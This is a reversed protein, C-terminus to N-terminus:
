IHVIENLASLFEEATQPRDKPDKALARHVLAIIPEQALGDPHVIALPEPEMLLQAKLWAIPKEKDSLGPKLSLPHRGMLMEYLIIGVVYLDSRGDVNDKSFPNCQEPAMYPPAGLMRGTQTLLETGCERAIGFDIIKVSNAGTTPDTALFINGPNLDRHVINALHAEQLAALIQQVIDIARRAFLPKREHGERLIKQLPLGQVLEMVLYPQKTATDEGYEILFVINPHQLKTLAKAERRFRTIEDPEQATATNLIKLALREGKPGEVEYVIAMGGRGLERIVTYKGGIVLPSPAPAIGLISLPGTIEGTLLPRNEAAMAVILDTEPLPLPTSCREPAPIPAPETSSRQRGRYYLVVGLGVLLLGGGVAWPWIFPETTSSETMPSDLPSQVTPTRAASPKMRTLARRVARTENAVPYTNIPAAPRRTDITRCEKESACALFDGLTDVDGDADRFVIPKGQQQLVTKVVAAVQKGNNQDAASLSAIAHNIAGQAGLVNQRRLVDRQQPSVIGLCSVVGGTATRYLDSCNVVQEDTLYAEGYWYGNACPTNEVPEDARGVAPMGFIALGVTVIMAGLLRAPSLAAPATAAFLNIPQLLPARVQSTAPPQVFSPWAPQPIAAVPLQTGSTRHIYRGTIYM